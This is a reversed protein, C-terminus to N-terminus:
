NGDNLGKWPNIILDLKSDADTESTVRIFRTDGVAFGPVSEFLMQGTHSELSNLSIAFADSPVLAGNTIMVSNNSLYTQSAIHVHGVVAVKYEEKDHLSANIKNLMNELKGTNISSFVNGPNLITDGHSYLIKQGFVEYSGYPTKPIIVKLNKYKSLATKVGYYIVTEHSDFKQHIARGHHRDARRGHNGTSCHVTVQKFNECLQAIGQSLLHIARCCQEALPAGDRPDHGISGQIIDGLLMVHLETENRYQPKYNITEQVISALRRSEEVTGYSIGGTEDSRVDAGFHLDSLVLNLARKTTNKGSKPKVPRVKGTFVDESLQRVYDHFSLVSTSQKNVAKTKNSAIANRQTKILTDVISLPQCFSAIDPYRELLQAHMDSASSFHSYFTKGSMIKTCDTKSPVKGLVRALDYIENLIGSKDNKRSSM